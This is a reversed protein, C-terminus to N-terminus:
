RCCSRVKNLTLIIMLNITSNCNQGDDLSAENEIAATTLNVNLISVYSININNGYPGNSFNIKPDHSETHTDKLLDHLLDFLFYCTLSFTM